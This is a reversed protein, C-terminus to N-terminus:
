DGCPEITNDEITALTVPWCALSEENVAGTVYVRDGWFFDGYDDLVFARGDDSSFIVTCSQPGRGLTGCGEFCEAITNDELATGVFPWCIDSDEVIVGRVFVRDGAGFGDHNELLFGEGTDAAFSLCGQPGPQLTGCGAFAAEITNDELARGILPFCILSKPAIRGSVYVYDGEWFGDTNEVLFSAGDDGVFALCTQPARQLTGYGAYWKCAAPEVLGRGVQLTDVSPTLALEGAFSVAACLSVVIISSIMRIM